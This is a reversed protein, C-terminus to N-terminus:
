AMVTKNTFARGAKRMPRTAPPIPMIKDNNMIMWNSVTLESSKLNMGLVAHNSHYGTSQM